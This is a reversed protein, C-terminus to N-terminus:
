SSLVEQGKKTLTGCCNTILTINDYTKNGIEKLSFYQMRETGKSYDPACLFLQLTNLPQIETRSFSGTYITARM